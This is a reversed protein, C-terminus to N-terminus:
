VAEVTTQFLFPFEIAVHPWAPALCVQHRERSSSNQASLKWDRPNRRASSGTLRYIASSRYNACDIETSVEGLITFFSPQQQEKPRTNQELSEDYIPRRLSAVPVTLHGLPRQPTHQAESPKLARLKNHKLTPSPNSAPDQPPTETESEPHKAGAGVFLQLFTGEARRGRTALLPNPKKTTQKSVSNVPCLGGVFLVVERNSQQRPKVLYSRV